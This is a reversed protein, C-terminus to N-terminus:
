RYVMLAGIVEFIYPTMWTYRGTGLKAEWSNKIEVNLDIIKLYIDPCNFAGWRYPNHM